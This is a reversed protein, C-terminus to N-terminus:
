GSAPSTDKGLVSAAGQCGVSTNPEPGYLGLRITNGLFFMFENGVNKKFPLNIKLIEKKKKLKFFVTLLVPLM